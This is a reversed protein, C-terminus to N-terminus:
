FRQFHILQNVLELLVPILESVIQLLPPIFASFSDLIPPLQEQLLPLVEDIMETLVPILMEGLPLVLMEVSRKLGELMSGLDDYKVAEIEGLADGTDYAGDEIDALATVAEAGLDEWMTGFLAVGAANQAIPDEIKALAAITENFATKADDGGAAIRVAMKDADLGIAAFGESTTESGDIARISFEKVADGVKDLNFAGSQAGAEFIKFMDDASMGMKGFQVSYENISDILEGSYDLGNQAGSAILAMAEEGSIGFSDMMAKAARTSEAVDYEFTDRLLFASETVKQLEDDTLAGLNTKVLGMSDAIDQFNDGYNNAYIKELVNQYRETSEAATGTSTIFSNMATDMDNAMKVSYTGAAVAAGGVAVFGAGIVKASDSAIKGLKEGGKKAEDNAKELDSKLQEIDARIQYIVEGDVEPM